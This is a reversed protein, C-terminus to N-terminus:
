GTKVINSLIQFACTIRFFQRLQDLALDVVLRAQDPPHDDELIRKEGPRIHLRQPRLHPPHRPDLLAPEVIEPMKVRSPQQIAPTRRLVDRNLQM